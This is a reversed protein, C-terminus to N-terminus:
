RMAVIAIAYIVVLVSLSLIVICMIGYFKFASKLNSFSLEFNEQSFTKFSIQANASFRYLFLCPFFLLISSVIYTFILTGSAASRSASEMESYPPTSKIYSPALFAFVLMLGCGVFGLIALFKGWKATESLYNQVVPSVQLDNNLLDTTDM